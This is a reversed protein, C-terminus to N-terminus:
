MNKHLFDIYLFAVVRHIGEIDRNMAVTEPPSSVV